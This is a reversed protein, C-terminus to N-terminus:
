AKLIKNLADQRINSRTDTMMSLLINKPLGFFADQQISVDIVTRYTSPLYRSRRITEFLHRSGDKISKNMRIMFLMPIYVTLVHKVIEKFKTSPRSTSIYLRLIRNATTLWRAKYIHGPERCHLDDPCTGSRVARSIDLM